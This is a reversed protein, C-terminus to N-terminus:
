EVAGSKGGMAGFGGRISTDGGWHSQKIMTCTPVFDRSTSPIFVHTMPHYVGMTGNQYVPEPEWGDDAPQSTPIYADDAEADQASQEKDCGAGHGIGFIALSSCLVLTVTKSRRM